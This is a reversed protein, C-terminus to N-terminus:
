LYEVAARFLSRGIFHWGLENENQNENQLHILLKVLRMRLCSEFYYGVIRNNQESM